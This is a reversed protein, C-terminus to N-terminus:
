RNQEAADNPWTLKANDALLALAEPPWYTDSNWGPVESQMRYCDITEGDIELEPVAWTSSLFTFTEERPVPKGDALIQGGTWEWDGRLGASANSAGREKILRAAKEWDFVMSEKDRNATGMAFASMTNM